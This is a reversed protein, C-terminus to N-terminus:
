ARIRTCSVVTLNQQLRTCHVFVGEADSVVDQHHTIGVLWGLGTLGALVNLQLRQRGISSMSASDGHVLGLILLRPKSNFLYKRVVESLLYEEANKATEHLLLLYLIRRVGVGVDTEVRMNM